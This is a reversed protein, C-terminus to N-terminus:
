YNQVSIKCLEEWARTHSQSLMGLIFKEECEVASPCSHKQLPAHSCHDSDHRVTQNNKLAFMQQFASFLFFFLFFCSKAAIFDLQMIVNLRGHTVM